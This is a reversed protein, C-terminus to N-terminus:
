GLEEAKVRAWVPETELGWQHVTKSDLESEMMTGMMTDWQAGWLTALDLGLEYVSGCVLEVDSPCDMAHAKSAVLEPGTQHASGYDSASGSDYVWMTDLGSVLATM